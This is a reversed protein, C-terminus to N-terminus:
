SSPSKSSIFCHVVWAADGHKFISEMRRTSVVMPGSDSLAKLAVKKGGVIFEMEMRKFDQIYKGLSQLWQIGLVADIDGLGVVYFDNTLTYDGLQISLQLVVRTCRMSFGDAVTVNFGPFDEVQLGRKAVLGENIFNHTAGNDVLCTVRQGKIVGKLRFPHYRPGGLLTVIIPNPADLADGVGLEVQPTEQEDEGDSGELDIDQIHEDDVDSM